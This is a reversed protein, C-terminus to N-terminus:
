TKQRIPDPLAKLRKVYDPWMLHRDRTWWRLAALVSILGLLVLATTM